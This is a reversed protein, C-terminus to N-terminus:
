LRDTGPGRAFDKAVRAVEDPNLEPAMAGTDGSCAIGANSTMAAERVKRVAAAQDAGEPVCRVIVEAFARAANRLETYRRTQDGKPPHYTFLNDLDDNTFM